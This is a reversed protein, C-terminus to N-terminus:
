KNKKGPPPPPRKKPAEPRKSEGGSGGVSKGSLSVPKEPEELVRTDLGAAELKKVLQPQPVGLSALKFIKVYDPHDKAMVLDSDGGDGGGGELSLGGAEEVVEVEVKKKKEVKKEVKEVKEVEEKLFEENEMEVSDKRIAALFPPPGKRLGDGGIVPTSKNIASKRRPPPPPPRSTVEVKAPPPPPKAAKSPPPPPRKGGGGEEKAPPVPPKAKPAAPKGQGGAGEEGGQLGAIEGFVNSADTKLIELSSSSRDLKSLGGFSGEGVYAYNMAASQVVELSSEYVEKPTTGLKEFSNKTAYMVINNLERSLEASNKGHILVLSTLHLLNAVTSSTGYTVGVKFALNMIDGNDVMDCSNVLWFAVNDYLEDTSMGKLYSELVEKIDDGGVFDDCCGSLLSRCVAVSEVTPPSGGSSVLFPILSIVLYVFRLGNVAIVDSAKASGLNILLKRTSDAIGRDKSLLGPMLLPVLGVFPNSWLEGYKISTSSINSFLTNIDKSTKLLHNFLLLGYSFFRLDYGSKATRLLTLSIWLLSPCISSVDVKKGMECSLCYLSNLAAFCKNQTNFQATSKVGGFSQDMAEELKGFLFAVEKTLAHLTGIGAPTGICSYMVHAKLTTAHSDGCHLAWNLVEQGTKARLDALGDSLCDLVELVFDKPDVAGFSKADCLTIDEGPESRSEKLALPQLSSLVNVLLTPITSYQVSAVGKSAASEDGVESFRTATPFKLIAFCIISPLFPLLPILDTKCLGSLLIVVSTAQLARDNDDYVKSAEGYQMEFTLPFTFWSACQEPFAKYCVMAIQQCVNMDKGSKATVYLLFSVVAHVNPNAGGDSGVQGVGKGDIKMLPKWMYVCVSNYEEPIQCSLSFLHNVFTEGDGSLQEQGDDTLIIKGCFPGLLQARWHFGGWESRPEDSEFAADFFDPVRGVSDLCDAISSCIEVGEEDLVASSDASFAMYHSNMVKAFDMKMATMFDIKSGEVERAKLIERDMLTLVNMRTMLFARNRIVVDPDRLASLGMFLLEMEGIAECNGCTFDGEQFVRAEAVASLEIDTSTRKKMSGLDRKVGWAGVERYYITSDETVSTAPPKPLTYSPILQDAIGNFLWKMEDRDTIGARKVYCPGLEKTHYALLWQFLETGSNACALFWSLHFPPREMLIEEQVQKVGNESLVSGMQVMKGVARSAYRFCAKEEARSLRVTSSIRPMEDFGYINYDLGESPWTHCSRLWKYLTQRQEKDYRACITFQSERSASNLYNAKLIATAVNDILICINLVTGGQTCNIGTDWGNNLVDAHTTITEYLALLEHNKVLANVFGDCESLIRFFKIIVMILHRKNKDKKGNYWSWLSRTVPGVADSSSARMAAEFKNVWLDIPDVSEVLLDWITALYKELPDNYAGLAWKGGGSAGAFELHEGLANGQKNALSLTLEIQSAWLTPDKINKTGTKARVGGDTLHMYLQRRTEEMVSPHAMTVVRSAIVPLAFKWITTSMQSVKKLPPATTAFATAFPDEIGSASDVMYRYLARQVIDSGERELFEDVCFSTKSSLVESESIRKEESLNAFKVSYILQFQASRIENVKGLLELSLSRVKVDEHCLCILGAAETRATWDPYHEDAGMEVVNSDEAAENKTRGDVGDKIFALWLGLMDLIIQLMTHVKTKDEMATESLHLVLETVLDPRKEPHFKLLRQLSVILGMHIHDYSHHLLGAKIVTSSLRFDVFPLANNIEQLIQLKNNVDEKLQQARFVDVTERGKDLISCSNTPLIAYGIKEVGVDKLILPLVDPIARSLLGAMEHQIGGMADLLANTRTTSAHKAFGSAPDLVIRVTRVGVAFFDIFKHAKYDLIGRIFSPSLSNSSITLMIEACQNAVGNEVLKSHKETYSLPLIRKTLFLELNAGYCNLSSRVLLNSMLLNAKAALSPHPTKIPSTKLNLEGFLTEIKTMVVKADESFNPDTIKSEEFNGGRMVMDILDLYHASFKTPMDSSKKIAAVSNSLLQTVFSIWSSFETLSESSTFDISICSLSRCLCLKQEDTPMGGTGRGDMWHVFLRLATSAYNPCMQGLMATLLPIRKKQMAVFLPENGMVERLIGAYAAQIIKEATEASINEGGNYSTAIILLELGVIEVCCELVECLTENTTSYGNIKHVFSDFTPQGAGTKGATQLGKHALFAPLWPLITSAVVDAHGNAALTELTFIPGPLLASGLNCWAENNVPKNKSPTYSSSEVLPNLVQALKTEIEALASIAVASAYKQAEETHPSLKAALLNAESKQVM